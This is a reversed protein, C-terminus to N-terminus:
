KEEKKFVLKVDSLETDSIPLKAQIEDGEVTIYLTHYAHKIGKPKMELKYFSKGNAEERESTKLSIEDRNSVLMSFKDSEPIYLLELPYSSKEGYEEICVYRVVKEQAFCSFHALFLMSFFAFTLKKM